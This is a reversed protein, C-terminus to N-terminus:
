ATARMLRNGADQLEGTVSYLRMQLEFSRNLDMSALMEEVASVNSSELHGSRVRMQDSDPLPQRSRAVLLGDEAKVLDANRGDILKLRGIEQPDPSGPLQATIQGSDSIQLDSAGDPVVLVGGQGLAPRGAVTLMGSGDVLLNGARTYAESGDSAQVSLYAQDIPAVDLPNGTPQTHGARLSTLSDATRSMIRSDFGAGKVPVSEAQALDARYGTTDANALNNARIQQSELARNAASMITYLLGDM